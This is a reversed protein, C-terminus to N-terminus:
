KRIYDWIESIYSTDRAVLILRKEITPLSLGSHSPLHAFVEELYSSCFGLTGDLQLRLTGQQLAPILMNDRFFPAPYSPDSGPFKTVDTPFNIIKLM